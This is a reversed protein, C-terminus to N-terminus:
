EYYSLNLIGQFTKGSPVPIDDRIWFKLSYGVSSAGGVMDLLIVGDESLTEISSYEENEKQIMYRIFDGSIKTSDEGTLFTLQFRAPSSDQNVIRFQYPTVERGVSDSVPYYYELDLTSSEEILSLSDMKGLYSLAGIMNKHNPLFVFYTSLVLFLLVFCIPLSYHIVVRKKKM